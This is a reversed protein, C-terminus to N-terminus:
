GGGKTTLLVGEMVQRTTSLWMDAEEQNTISPILGLCKAMFEAVVPEQQRASWDTVLGDCAFRLAQALAFGDPPVPTTVAQWHHAYTAPKYGIRELLQLAADEPQVDWAMACIKVPTFFEGCAFCWANNPLPYVRLAPDVGGDDHYIEGFPCRVKLSRTRDILGPIDTGALRCAVEIPVKKNALRVASEAM